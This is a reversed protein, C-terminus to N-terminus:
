CSFFMTKYLVKLECILLTTISYFKYKTKKRTIIKLLKITLFSLPQSNCIGYFQKQVREVRPFINWKYNIPIKVLKCIIKHLYVVFNVVFNLRERTLQSMFGKDILKQTIKGPKNTSLSVYGKLLSHIGSFMLYFILSDSASSSTMESMPITWLPQRGSGVMMHSTFDRVSTREM